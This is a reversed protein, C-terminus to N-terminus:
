FFGDLPDFCSIWSGFSIHKWIFRQSHTAYSCAQHIMLNTHKSDCLAERVLSCNTLFDHINILSIWVSLTGEKFHNFTSEVLTIGVSRTLSCLWHVTKIKLSGGKAPTNHFTIITGTHVYISRCLIFSHIVPFSHINPWWLTVWLHDWTWCIM